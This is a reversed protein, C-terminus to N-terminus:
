YQAREWRRTQDDNLMPSDRAAAQCPAAPMSQEMQRSPLARALCCLPYPFLPSFSCLIVVQRLLSSLASLPKQRQVRPLYPKWRLLFAPLQVLWSCCKLFPVHPSLTAESPHMCLLESFFNSIGKSSNREWSAGGTCWTPAPKGKCLMICQVMLKWCSTPSDLALNCPCIDTSSVHWCFVQLLTLMVCGGLCLATLFNERHSTGLESKHQVLCPLWCAAIFCLLPKFSSPTQNWRIIRFSTLFLHCQSTKKIDRLWVFGQKEPQKNGM